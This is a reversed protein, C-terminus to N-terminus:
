KSRSPVTSCVSTRMAHLKTKQRWRVRISPVVATGAGRVRPRSKQGQCRVLRVIKVQDAEVRVGNRCFQFRRRARGGESANRSPLFDHTSGQRKQVRGGDIQVLLRRGVGVRSEEHRAAMSVVQAYVGREQFEDLLDVRKEEDCQANLNAEKVDVFM